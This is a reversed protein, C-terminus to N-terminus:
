EPANNPRRASLVGTRCGIAVWQKCGADPPRIKSEHFRFEAIM